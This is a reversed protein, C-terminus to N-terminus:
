AEAYEMSIEFLASYIVKREICFSSPMMLGYNLRDLVGCVKQIWLLLQKYVIATQESFCLLLSANLWSM